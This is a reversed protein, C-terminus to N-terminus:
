NISSCPRVWIINLMRINDPETTIIIVMDYHLPRIRVIKGDKVDVACPVGGTTVGGLSLSKIVTREREGALNVWRRAQAAAPHAKLM